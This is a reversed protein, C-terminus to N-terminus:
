EGRPSMAQSLTVSLPGGRAHPVRRLPNYGGGARPRPPVRGIPWRPRSGAADGCDAAIRRPEGSVGFPALGGNGLARSSCQCEVVRRVNRRQGALEGAVLERLENGLADPSRKLARVEIRNLTSGRRRVTTLDRSRAASLEASTACWYLACNGSRRCTGPRAAKHEQTIAPWWGEVCVVPGAGGFQRLAVVPPSMGREDRRSPAVKPESIAFRRLGNADAIPWRRVRQGLGLDRPM